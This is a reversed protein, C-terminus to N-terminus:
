EDKDIILPNDSENLKKITAKHKVGPLSEFEIILQDGPNMEILPNIIVEYM